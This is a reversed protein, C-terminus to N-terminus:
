VQLCGVILGRSVSGKWFIVVIKRCICDNCPIVVGEVHEPFPRRRLSM